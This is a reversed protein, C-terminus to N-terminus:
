LNGKEEDPLFAANHFVIHINLLFGLYICFEYFENKDGWKKKYRNSINVYM